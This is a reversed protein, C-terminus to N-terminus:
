FNFKVGGLLVNTNGQPSVAGWYYHDTLNISVEKTLNVEAGLSTLVNWGAQSNSVTPITKPGGIDAVGPTGYAGGVQAFLSFMDGIPLTGKFSADYYQMGQNIGSGAQTIVTTGVEFGWYQNWSYGGDVRFATAPSAVDNWSAGASAGLYLNNNGVSQNTPEACVPTSIVTTSILAGSLALALTHYKKM